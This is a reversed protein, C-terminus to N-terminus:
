MYKAPTNQKTIELVNAEQNQKIGKFGLGIREILTSGATGLLHGGKLAWLSMLVGPALDL